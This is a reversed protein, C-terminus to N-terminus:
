GAKEPLPLGNVKLVGKELTITVVYDGGDETIFGQKVWEALQQKAQQSESLPAQLPISATTAQTVVSQPPTVTPTPSLAVAPKSSAVPIKILHDDILKNLLMASVRLNMKGVEQTKIDALTKVVGSWSIQADSVLHGLSTEIVVSYNLATTPTIVSPLLTDQLQQLEDPSLQKDAQFSHMTKILTVFQPASIRKISATANSSKILIPQINLEGSSLQMGMNYFTNSEMDSSFAFQLNKLAIEGTDVTNLLFEPLTLSYSGIFLGGPSLKANYELTADKTNLAGSNNKLSLAGIVTKMTSHDIQNNAGMKLYVTGHAGRWVIQMEPPVQLTIAPVNFESTYENKFTAITHSQIVGKSVGQKGFLREEIAQPVHLYSQIGAVAIVWAHKTSDFVIPGHTIIDNTVLTISEAPTNESASSSQRTITYFVKATSTLWGLRYELVGVKMNKNHSDKNVAKILSMYQHKFLLGDVFPVLCGLGALVLLFVLIGKIRM